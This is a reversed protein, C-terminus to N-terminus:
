PADTVAWAGWRQDWHAKSAHYSGSGVTVLIPTGDTPASEIPQWFNMDSGKQEPGGVPGQPSRGFGHYGHRDLPACCLAQGKVPAAVAEAEWSLALRSPSSLTHSICATM